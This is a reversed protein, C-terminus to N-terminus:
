EFGLVFKLQPEKGGLGTRECGSGGVVSNAKWWLSEFLLLNLYDLELVEGGTQRKDM